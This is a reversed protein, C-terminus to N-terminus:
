HLPTELTMLDINKETTGQYIDKNRITVNKLNLFKKNKALIKAFDKRVEYTIVKKCISALFFALAGSGGGADLAISNKNIGTEAIITGIDKPAIIQPGRASKQYLDIFQPELVIFEKGTHTKITKGPKAKKLQSAKIYGYQTHFDKTLDKIFFKKGKKTLLIKKIM